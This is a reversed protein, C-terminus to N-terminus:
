RFTRGSRWSALFTEEGGMDPMSLDLLVADFDGARAGFRELGERGGPAISVEYGENTLVAAVMERVADEDEIVLVRLGTSATPTVPLLENVESEDSIAFLLRFVTGHGPTSEMMLGGGHGRMIGLVAALGLGRGTFKTTFFPDFVREATEPEMGSGDDAVELLVYEGPAPSTGSVQWSGSEAETLVHVRSTVTVKGGSAGVAEAGNIVLNMLVQQLQGEDASVRPLADEFVTELRVNKPLSVELLPLTAEVLAELDTPKIVFAGRGSYALMQRTLVAAREVTAAAKELHERVGDERDLKAQALSVHGLVAALLNNFDHAVGGALVTLSEEKAARRLTEEARKAEIATTVQESVFVLLEREEDGLRVRPDYTQVALVGIAENGSLLPVGLWDVSEAGVSEVEGSRVLEEFVDPTALLPERTRLVHETLGWGLPKSAPTPDHEDVFYPFSSCGM